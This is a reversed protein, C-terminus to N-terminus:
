TKVYDSKKLAEEVVDPIEVVAVAEYKLAEGGVGMELVSVPNM